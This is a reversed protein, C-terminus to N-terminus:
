IYANSQVVISSILNKQCINLDKWETLYVEQKFIGKTLHRRQMHALVDWMAGLTKGVQTEIRYTDHYMELATKTEMKLMKSKM